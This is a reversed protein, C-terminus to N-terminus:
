LEIGAAIQGALDEVARSMATVIAEDGSGVVAEVLSTQQSALIQRSVADVISWRAVLIVRQDARSEFAVVDVLVQRAPRGLPPTATVFMGPLRDALSAALARTMGVSLREGWRSTSSPLLQNGRRELMATRDLYDPLQVRKVEVLPLGTEPVSRATPEPLTGLVYEAPPPGALKCAALLSTALGFFALLAARVLRTDMWEKAAPERM